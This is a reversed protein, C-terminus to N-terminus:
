FRINGPRLNNNSALPGGVVSTIGTTYVNGTLLVFARGESAVGGRARGGPLYRVTVTGSGTAGAFLGGSADPNVTWTFRTPRGARDLDATSGTLTFAFATDTSTNRDFAVALGSTGRAPDTPVVAGLQVDGHLFFNSSGIGKVLVQSAEDSFRGRSQLFRGEFAFRVRQRVAEHATPTGTPNLFQNGATDAGGGGTDQSVAIPPRSAPLLRGLGSLLARPELGSVLPRLARPRGM